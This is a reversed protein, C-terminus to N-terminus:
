APWRRVSFVGEDRHLVQHLILRESELKAHSVCGSTWFDLSSVMLHRSWRHLVVREIIERGSCSCSLMHWARNNIIHVRARIYSGKQGLCGVEVFSSTVFMECASEVGDPLLDKVKDQFVLPFPRIVLSNKLTDQDTIHTVSTASESRTHINRSRKSTSYQFKDISRKSTHIRGDIVFITTPDHLMTMRTSAKSSSMSRVTRRWYMDNRHLPCSIISSM